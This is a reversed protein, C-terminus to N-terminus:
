VMQRLTNALGKKFETLRPTTVVERPLGHWHEVIRKTFVERIDLM